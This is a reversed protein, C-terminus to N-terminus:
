VVSKRDLLYEAARAVFAFTVAGVVFLIVAAKLPQRRTSRLFVNTRM